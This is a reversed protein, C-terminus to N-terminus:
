GLFLVEHLRFRALYRGAVPRASLGAVLRLWVSDKGTLGISLWLQQGLPDYGEGNCKSGVRLRACLPPLPDAARNSPGVTVVGSM